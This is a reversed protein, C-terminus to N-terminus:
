VSGAKGTKLSIGSPLDMIKLGYYFSYLLIVLSVSAFVVAVPDYNPLWYVEKLAKDYVYWHNALVCASLLAAPIWLLRDHLVCFTIFIIAPLLYREHMRTAFMFSGFLVFYASFYPAIGNNKARTLLVLAFIVTLATLALGWSSYSIGLFPKSDHVAQGGLLTWINFANATGYPYDDLSKRYLHIMWYFVDITKGLKGQLPTPSYFPVVAFVYLFFGGIFSYICRIRDAAKKFSFGRFFMFLVLPALLGSQPKVLVAGCFLIFASTKRGSDILYIVALLMTAPISDFQGWVSSNFFVGPNLAYLTGLILGPIDKKHKSAIKYLLYGGAIDALVAWIKVMFEHSAPGLSFLRTIIGTIWLLYMYAPAYVVHFNDYFGKFGNDALYLSWAKYGGMDIRYSPLTSLMFRIVIIGALVLLLTSRNILHTRRNILHTGHDSKNKRRDSPNTRRDLQHAERDLQRTGRDSQQTRHDLQHTRCDSQRM